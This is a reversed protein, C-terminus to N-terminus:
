QNGRLHVLCSPCCGHTLFLSNAKLYEVVDQWQADGTKVKGCYMCIPLTEQIKRLHWHSEDLEALAKELQAKARVLAKSNKEHDRALLAWRNNMETLETALDRDLDAVPQGSLTFGSAGLLLRCELTHVLHSRSVFNLLMPSEPPPDPSALLALVSDADPATLLDRLSHGIWVAAPERLLNEFAPNLSEIRGDPAARLWFRQSAPPLSNNVSTAVTPGSEGPLSEFTRTPMHARNLPLGCEVQRRLLDQFPGSHWSHYSAEDLWRTLLQFASPNGRDSLLEM